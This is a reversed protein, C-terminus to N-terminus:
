AGEAQDQTRTQGDQTTAVHHISEIEARWVPQGRSPASSFLQMHFSTLAPDPLKVKFYNPTDSSYRLVLQDPYVEANCDTALRYWDSMQLSNPPHPSDRWVGGLEAEDRQVRERLRADEPLLYSRFVRRSASCQYVLVKSHVKVPLVLSAIYYIVGLASFSPQVLRAHHRTLECTEVCVGSDRQHLVRVADHVPSEGGGLCLFHPLHIEELQGSMLKIDMLPGAPSCQMHALEEASAYWDLFHYQLTVSGACLWRLRSVLCEYSGAASSLTYSSVGQDTSVEPKVLVWHSSDPVEDCSACGRPTDVCLAEPTDSPHFSRASASPEKKYTKDNLQLTELTCHPHQLLASLKEQHAQLGDERLVLHRLSCIGSNLASLLCICVSETLQCYKLELTELACNYHTLASILLEVGSQLIGNNSLDLQKLRSSHSTLVSALYSCSEETLNCSWLQLEELKCNPHRLASCLLKVGSDQLNNDSLNLQKLQSAPSTLASALYSCSKETLQCFVIQLEELRCNIHSLASCLLEVGSDRVRNYSLKLQRLNSFHSMLASALYSCSNETLIGTEMRASVSTSVVPMLRELVDNPNLLDTQDMEPTKIYKQLDFGDMQNELMNLRFQKTLRTKPLPMEVSLTGSDRDIHEVVAHHNVENLLYFPGIRNRMRNDIKQLVIQATCESSLSQNSAQPLLYRLLSQNSELSFGVLFRVFLHLHENQLNLDVAGHYLDEQTAARLLSSLQSTGQQGPMDQERNIFCLFVHLAALFEQISLHVFSFVKDDHTVAEERFIQSFVGAYETAATVDIGCKRLDDDYFIQNGQRQEMQQFALKGLKVIMGVDEDERASTQINLYHTYMQTLTRPMAVSESGGSMREIVTAAISCFAPIHSMTSIDRFTKMYSITRSALNDDAMRKKFYEETMHESYGRKETLQDLRDYPIQDAAAPRTTIWVLSSPLLHGKILNTLLVDVPVAQSVDYCKPNSRFHLPLRCEDLGDFIFMVKHKSRTLVSPDKINSFFHTILDVLSITREKMLNLERFPLPLIFDVEQSSRGEAWDLIFNQVSVTKGIGAVGMTMAVRNTQRERHLPTQQFMKSCQIPRDWNSQDWAMKEMHRLEGRDTNIGKGRNPIFLDRCMPSLPNIGKVLSGFRRQLHAKHVAKHVAIQEM